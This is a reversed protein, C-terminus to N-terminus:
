GCMEGIMRGYVDVARELQEVEVWEGQTHAQAINGPGLVVTQTRQQYLVAETGYPVAIAHDHGSARCAAQVIEADPSVHFPPFGSTEVSLNRAKARDIIMQVAEESHADPMLRLGVSCVTQAATVNLKCGGDNVIMNFGNTPPDFEDNKFRPDRKFLDALEVMEAMFPAILLTASVGRDTSTHAAVGHATVNIRQGGKHAYVPILETPEGVVAFAPWGQGLLRSDNLLAHAGTYGDEEDSTVGIFLPQRLDAVNVRGAAVLMAALAGKMDCTGRGFLRGDQEFPAYPSWGDGGPVTDSHGFFGLGGTDAADGDPGLRGVLCVKEVGREDDKVDIYAIREVDFGIQRMVVEIRESVARNSHQTESEIAVLEKTLEVVDLTM